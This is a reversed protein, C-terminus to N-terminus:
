FLGSDAVLILAKIVEDYSAPKMLLRRTITEYDNKYFNSQVIEKLLKPIEIGDQASLCNKHAKRDSRVESILNKLEPRFLDIRSILKAIDYIHRSNREENKSLFYDCIAFVKDVFTRELTQTKVPFTLLGYDKAFDTKGIATLYEGIYSSVMLEESPYCKQIYTMEVKLETRLDNSPFTVPYQIEYCNYNAHTHKEIRERNILLLGLERCVDILLRVSARKSSQAFHENDLTLDIDESFREILHHCKSLSTGGKFILGPVRENAKHLFLTVFYDKEVLSPKIDFYLSTQLIAERFIVKYKHLDMM